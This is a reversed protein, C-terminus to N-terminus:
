IQDKIERWLSTAGKVFGKWFGKAATNTWDPDGKYNAVYDLGDDGPWPQNLKLLTPLTEIYAEVEYLKSDKVFDQGSEFGEKEWKNMLEEKEKRFREITSAIDKVSNDWLEFKRIETEIATRAVKSYNIEEKFKQMKEYLSDPLSVSIRKM